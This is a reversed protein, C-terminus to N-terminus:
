QASGAQFTWKITCLEVPTDGSLLTDNKIAGRFNLKIRAQESGVPALNWANPKTLIMSKQLETFQLAPAGFNSVSMWVCENFKAAEFEAESVIRFAQNQKVYIAFVHANYPSNNIIQLTEPHATVFTGDPQVNFEVKLPASINVQATVLKAEVKTSAEVALAQPICITCGIALMLLASAAIHLTKHSYIRVVEGVSKM